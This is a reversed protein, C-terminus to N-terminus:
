LWVPWLGGDGGGGHERAPVSRGVLGPGVTFPALPMRHAGGRVREM